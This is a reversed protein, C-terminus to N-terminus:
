EIAKDIMKGFVSKWGKWEGMDNLTQNHWLPIFEGGVRRVEDLLSLIIELSQQPTLRLYDHLTGDMVTIPHIRLHTQQELDLDYFLFPSCISARFGPEDPFGLTYDDMIDLHILNRYTSPFELRLFHQRSRTVDQHLVRSLRKVETAFLSHKEFSAYSPHIGVEAYDAIHRILKLFQRNNVPLNKDRPGYDAMLIFYIMKIDKEQQIRFLYDFTDFPDKMRGSLVMLRERIEDYKKQELSRFIGGLTRTLGKHRYSYAADIDVTPTFRFSPRRVVIGPLREKFLKELIMAWQNVLPKRLFGNKYAEGSSAPFRGHEDRVHPLYEEYRSVLYFTASFVDFPLIASKDILGFMAVTDGFEFCTIRKVSIGNEYLLGNSSFYLEKRDVPVGYSMRPGEYSLYEAISHTFRYEIGLLEGLMLSFTYSLRNSPKETLVLLM